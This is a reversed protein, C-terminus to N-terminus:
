YLIINWLIFFSILQILASAIYNYGLILLSFVILVGEIIQEWNDVFIDNLGRRRAGFGCNLTAFRIGVTNSRFLSVFFFNIEKSRSYFSSVNGLHALRGDFLLTEVFSSSSSVVKIFLSSTNIGLFPTTTDM